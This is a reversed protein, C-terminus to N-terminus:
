LDFILTVAVSLEPLARGREARRWCQAHGCPVLKVPTRQFGAHFREPWDRTYCCCSCFWTTGVNGVQLPLHSSLSSTM